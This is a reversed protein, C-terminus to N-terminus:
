PSGNADGQTQQRAAQQAAAAAAQLATVSSAQEEAAKQAAAAAAAQEAAQQAAAAEAAAQAARQAEAAAAQEQAAKEAAAAQEQALAEAAAQAAATQEEAAKQAAAAAAAQESLSTQAGTQASEESQQTQTGQAAAVQAELEKQAAAIQEALQQEYQQELALAAQAAADDTMEAGADAGATGSGAGSTEAATGQQLSVSGTLSPDIYIEGDPGTLIIDPNVAVGTAADVYIGDENQVIQMQAASSQGSNDGTYSGQSSGPQAATSSGAGKQGNGWAGAGATGAPNGAASGTSGTGASGSGYASGEASSGAGSGPIRAGPKRIGDSESDTEERIFQGLDYAGTEKEIVELEEKTFVGDEADIGYLIGRLIQANADFDVAYLLRNNMGRMSGFTGEAPITFQQIDAGMFKPALTLLEAVETETLNTQVLPIVADLMAIMQAPNLRSLRKAAAAIVNRQRQIRNWDSDIYRTRAYVMATAGNLHNTGPVLEQMQDEVHMGKAYDATFTGEPHNIHEAEAETVEIDIGGIADILRILTAINIRVYSNVDVLFNERIEAVMMNAGGYRFMHTLWDYEGEYPGWLIPVGMGREFSILSVRNTIQNISLLMCTDSRADNSFQATRDDTGLLLINYVDKTEIIEGTAHTVEQEELDALKEEMEQASEQVATSVKDAEVHSVVLEETYEEANDKQLRSFEYHYVGYIVLLLVAIVAAIVAAAKKWGRLKKGTSKTKEKGSNELGTSILTQTQGSISQGATSGERGNRGASATEGQKRLVRLAVKEDRSALGGSGKIDLAKKLKNYKFVNKAM